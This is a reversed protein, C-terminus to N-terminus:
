FASYLADRAEKGWKSEAQKLLDDRIVQRIKDAGPPAEGFAGQLEILGAIGRQWKRNPLKSALSHLGSNHDNEQTFQAIDSVLKAVGEPMTSDAAQLKAAAARLSTAVTKRTKQDMTAEFSSAVSAKRVGELSAILDDLPQLDIKKGAAILLRLGDIKKPDLDEWGHVRLDHLVEKYIDEIDIPPTLNERFWKYLGLREKKSKAM